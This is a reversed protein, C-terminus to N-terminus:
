FEFGVGEGALRNPTLLWDILSPGRENDLRWELSELDAPNVPRGDLWAGRPHGFDSGGRAGANAPADDRSELAESDSCADSDAVPLLVEYLDDEHLRRFSPPNALHLMYEVELGLTRAACLRRRLSIARSSVGAAILQVSLQGPNRERFQMAPALWDPLRGHEEDEIFLVLRHPLADGGVLVGTEPFTRDLRSTRGTMGAAFPIIGVSADLNAPVTILRDLRTRLETLETDLDLFQENGDRDVVGIMTVRPGSPQSALHKSARELNRRLCAGSAGTRRAEVAEVTLELERALRARGEETRLEAAVLPWDQRELLRLAEEAKGLSAVAMFWVRVADSEADSASLFGRIPVLEMRLEDGREGAVRRLELWLRLPGTESATPDLYVELVTPAQRRGFGLFFDLGQARCQESSPDHGASPEPPGQPPALALALALSLPGYM